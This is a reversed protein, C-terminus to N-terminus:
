KSGGSSGAGPSAAPPPTVTPATGAPPNVVGKVDKKQKSGMTHRAERTARLREVKLQKQEPTLPASAKKPTFGFAKYEPSDEGYTTLAGAQFDKVFQKVAAVQSRRAALAQEYLAKQGDVNTYLQVFSAALPGLVTADPNGGRFSMTKGVTLVEAIGRQIDLLKTEEKKPNDSSM